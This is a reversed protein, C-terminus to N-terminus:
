ASRSSSSVEYGLSAKFKHDEQKPMSLAPITHMHVVGLENGEKM